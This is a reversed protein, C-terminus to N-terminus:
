ILKDYEISIKQIIIPEDYCEKVKSINSKSIEKRLVSDNSLLLIKEALAEPDGARILFGNKGNQIVDPIAGVSSAIVPLGTAMAELIAIPFGEAYSPLVFIDSEFFLKRKEKGNVFGMIRTYELIGKRECISQLDKVNSCGAFVFLVNKSKKIVLRAAEVTDYLGKEKAGAGGIFLVNITQNNKNKNNTPTYDAKPHEFASADVFNPLVFIKEEPSFKLFIKKWTPSLIFTRQPLIIICRIMFRSIANSNAYFSEFKGGHIHLIAKKGMARSIILYLANEWFSWYSATNIHVIDPHRRLLVFPFSVLHVATSIASKILIFSGIRGILLYDSVTRPIGFTPRGTDFTLLDYKESLESHLLSWIFTAIGGVNPPLPGLFLIKLAKTHNGSSRKPTSSSM